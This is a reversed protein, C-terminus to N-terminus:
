FGEHGLLIHEAILDKLEKIEKKLQKIEEAYTSTGTNNMAIATNGTTTYTELIKINDNM